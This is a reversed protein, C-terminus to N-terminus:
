WDTQQNKNNNNNNNHWHSGQQSVQRRNTTGSSSPAFSSPVKAPVSTYSPFVPDVKNVNPDYPKILKRQLPLVAKPKTYKRQLLNAFRARSADASPLAGTYAQMFLDPRWKKKFRWHTITLEILVTPEEDTNTRIAYHKIVCKSLLNAIHGKTVEDPYILNIAMAKAICNLIYLQSDSAIELPGEEADHDKRTVFFESLEDKGIIESYAKNLSTPATPNSAIKPVLTLTPRSYIPLMEIEVANDNPGVSKYDTSVHNCEVDVEGFPANDKEYDKSITIRTLLAFMRMVTSSMRKRTLRLLRGDM